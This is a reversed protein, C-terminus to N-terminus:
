SPPRSSSPVLRAAAGPGAPLRLIYVTGNANATALHRGDPTLALGLVPGPCKWEHVPAATQRNWAVVKGDHGATYLLMGDASFVTAAVGDEHAKILKRLKSDSLQWLRVSGDSSGSALETGDPSFAVSYVHGAQGVFLNVEKETQVDWVHLPKEATLTGAAVTRGSPSFALCFVGRRQGDPNADIKSKEKGDALLRLSVWGDHTGVALATGDPSAALSDIHAAAAQDMHEDPDAVDCLRVQNVAQPMVLWKGDGTFILNNLTQTAKRYGGVLSHREGAQPIDWIKAVGFATLSAVFRGRPDAAVNVVEGLHGTLPQVEKVAAIDWVRVANLDGTVLHRGDASFAHPGMSNLKIGARTAKEELDWLGISNDGCSWAIMKGDPSMGLTKVLRAANTDYGPITKIKDGSKTDWIRIEGSNWGSSTCLQGGDKTFLLSTLGGEKHAQWTRVLKFDPTQWLRTKGGAEGHVLWRGEPSFAMQAADGVLKEPELLKKKTAVDFAQLTAGAGAGSQLVLVTGDPSFLLRIPLPFAGLHAQFQPKRSDFLGVSGSASVAAIASSDSPYVVSNLQNDWNNSMGLLKGGAVEWFKLTYGNEGVKGVRDLGGGTALTGSDPSFTLSRVGSKPYADVHWVEKGTDVKYLRVAGEFTGAALWLGNPSVAWLDASPLFALPQRSTLDWLGASKAGRSIIIKKESGGLEVSDVTEWHRGRHEGLVGVLERPAEPGVARWALKAEPPLKAADLQDFPSPLKMLLQRAQAAAKTGPHRATFAEVEKAFSAFSATPEKAKAALAAFPKEALADRQQRLEEEKAYWQRREKEEEALRKEEERLKKELKEDDGGLDPPPQKKKTPRVARPEDPPKATRSFSRVIVVLLILAVAAAAVGLGIQLRRNSRATGARPRAPRQILELSSVPTNGSHLEAFANETSASTSTIEPASLTPVAPGAPVLPMSVPGAPQASGSTAAAIALALEAPTQYRQEPPKALLRTVVAEVQPPVDSRLSRLPTPAQQQHKLLKEMLTGGPFPVQGAILFYLTCGLSYLDARTDVNHADTGQEPAIYDPTGMIVGEQTMSSSTGAEDGDVDIRALGLDLIKIVGYDGTGLKITKPSAGEKTAPAPSQALSLLLNHPKIDRHVLGREFAHQLGLAAQRIYDCARRVDIPGRGKVLKHLDIGNVYEMAFFYTGNVEDADLARVINPHQLQAVARIERFFRKGAAPNGLREKRVVKLAVIRGLKRDKAKFVQGMGGEGLRELLIYSGFLLDRGTGKLLHNAQFATLWGRRLLERALAKPDPLSTQLRKVEELQGPELLRYQRLSELLSSNTPTSM